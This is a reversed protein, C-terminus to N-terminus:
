KDLALLQRRYRILRMILTGGTVACNVIAALLLCLWSYDNVFLVTKGAPLLTDHIHQQPAHRGLYLVLSLLSIAASGVLSLVASLSRYARDINGGSLFGFWSSLVGPLAVIFAMVDVNTESASPMLAGSLWTTIVVAIAVILAGGLSGPPIEMFRLCYFPQRYQTRNFNRTGLSTLSQAAPRKWGIYSPHLTERPLPELWGRANAGAANYVSSEDIYLGQPATVYLQYAKASRSREIALSVLRPPFLLKARLHDKRERWWERAYVVSGNTSLSEVYSFEVSRYSPSVASASLAFIPRRQALVRILARLTQRLDATNMLAPLSNVISRYLGALQVLDVDNAFIVYALAQETADRLAPDAAAFDGALTICLEYMLSATEVFPLVSLPAGSADEVAFNTQLRPQTKLPRALLVAYHDGVKGRPESSLDLRIRHHTTRGMVSIHEISRLRSETPAILDAILYIATTHDLRARRSITLNILDRAEQRSLTHFNPDNAAPLTPSSPLSGSHHSIWGSTYAKATACAGVALPLRVIFALWHPVTVWLIGNMCAVFALTTGLCALVIDRGYEKPPLWAKLSARWAVLKSFIV